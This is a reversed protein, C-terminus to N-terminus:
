ITEYEDNKHIQVFEEMGDIVADPHFGIGIMATYFANLMEDTSVDWHLDQEITKDTTKVILKTPLMTDNGLYYPDNNRM